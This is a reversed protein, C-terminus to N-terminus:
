SATAAVLNNSGSFDVAVNDLGRVACNDVNLYIQGGYFAVEAGDPNTDGTFATQTTGDITVADNARWFYSYSTWVVARGPYLWQMPWQNQPIAFAVTDAGPTHNAAIMAESFSVVGDPGPLDDITATAWDIDIPDTAINVTITAAAAAGGLLLAIPVIFIGLPIRKM